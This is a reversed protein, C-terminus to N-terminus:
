KILEEQKKMEILAEEVSLLKTKLEKKAKSVDLCCKKPRKAALNLNESVIPKILSENLKFIKALKKGFEFRSMCEPSALHYIGKKNTKCIEIIAKAANDAFTPTTYQDTFLRIEEKKRLKEIIWTAFNQKDTITNWGYLSSIRCIVWDKCNKKVEKEGILKTIGYYNIPNPKDDEKYLGKRGDFVADTSIYILKAGVREACKAVRSPAKGNIALADEKATECRDVNTMAATLIIYTPNQTQTFTKVAKEDRIDLQNVTVNDMKFFHSAYTGITEFEKASERLIKSGLLGSGGIVIGKEM